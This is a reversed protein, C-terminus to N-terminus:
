DFHHRLRYILLIFFDQYSKKKKPYNMNVLNIRDSIKDPSFNGTIFLFKTLNNSLLDLLNLTINYYSGSGQIPYTLLCVNLDNIRM